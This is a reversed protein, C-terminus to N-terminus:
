ALGNDVAQKGAEYHGRIANGYGLYQMFRRGAATYRADRYAASLFTALARDSITGSDAATIAEDRAAMLEPFEMSSQGSTYEPMSAAGQVHENVEQAGVSARQQSLEFKISV